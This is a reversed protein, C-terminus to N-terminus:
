TVCRRLSGPQSQPAGESKSHEILSRDVGGGGGDFISFDANWISNELYQDPWLIMLGLFLVSFM